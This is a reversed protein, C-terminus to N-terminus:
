RQEVQQFSQLNHIRAPPTPFLEDQHKQATQMKQNTTRVPNEIPYRDWELKKIATFYNVYLIWMDKNQYHERLYEVDYGIEDL